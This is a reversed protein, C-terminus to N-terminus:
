LGEPQNWSRDQALSLYAETAAADQGLQRLYHAQHRRLTADGPRMGLRERVEALAAADDGPLRPLSAPQLRQAGKHLHFLADPDGAAALLEGLIIRGRAHDPDVQVAQKLTAVAFDPEEQRRRWALEVLRDAVLRRKAPDMDLVKRYRVMAEEVRREALLQDGEPDVAGARLEVPAPSRFWALWRTPDPLPVHISRAVMEGARSVNVQLHSRPPLRGIDLVREVPPNGEWQVRLRRHGATVPRLLVWGEGLPEVTESGDEAVLVWDMRAEPPFSSVSLYSVRAGLLGWSGLVLTTCLGLGFWGQLRRREMGRRTEDSLEVEAEAQTPPRMPSGASVLAERVGRRSAAFRGPISDLPVRDPIELRYRVALAILARTMDGASEYRSRPDRAMARAFIDDLELPLTLTLDSRPLRPPPHEVRRKAAQWPDEGERVPFASDGTLLEYLVMGVGYLDSAPGGEEGLVREPALSTMCGAWREELPAGAPSFDRLAGYDTLVAAGQASLMVNELKVDGHLVGNEHAHGLGALVDMVLRFAEPLPLPGHEAVVDFASRGDVFDTCCFLYEAEQGVDRVRSIAAHNLFAAGEAASRMRTLVEAAPIGEVVEPLLLKLALVRDRDADRVRYVVSSGREGDSLQEEVGYRGIAELAPDRGARGLRPGSPGQRERRISGPEGQPAM